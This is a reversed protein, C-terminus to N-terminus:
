CFILNVSTRPPKELDSQLLMQRDGETQGRGNEQIM